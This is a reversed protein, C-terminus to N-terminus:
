RWVIAEQPFCDPRVMRETLFRLLADMDNLWEQKSIATVTGHRVGLLPRDSPPTHKHILRTQTLKKLDTIQRLYRICEIRDFHSSQAPVDLDFILEHLQLHEAIYCCAGCWADFGHMELRDLRGGYKSKAVFRLSICRINHRAQNSLRSLFRCITETDDGFAFDHSRYLIPEAEDHIQQCTYLIAVDIELECRGYDDALTRSSPSSVHFGHSLGAVKIQRGTGALMYSYVQQRIEFPLQLFPFPDSRRDADLFNLARRAITQPDCQFGYGRLPMNFQRSTLNQSSWVDVIRIPFKGLQYAVLIKRRLENIRNTVAEVKDPDLASTDGAFAWLLSELDSDQMAKSALLQSIWSDNPIPLSGM